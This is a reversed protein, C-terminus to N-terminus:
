EDFGHSEKKSFVLLISASFDFIFVTIVFSMLVVKWSYNVDRTWYYVILAICNILSLVGLSYLSFNKDPSVPILLAALGIATLKFIGWITGWFFPALLIFYIIDFDQYWSTTWDITINLLRIFLFNIIGIALLSVPIFVM